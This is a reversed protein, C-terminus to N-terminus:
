RYLPHPSFLEKTESMQTYISLQETRNSEKCDQLRHSEETWPIRWALISSHTTMRKELLNERGLSQIWTEHMEPLNKLM